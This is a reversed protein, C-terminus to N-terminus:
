FSTVYKRAALLAGDLAGGQPACLSVKPSVYRSLPTTILEGMSFVGGSWSCNTRGEGVLANVLRSLEHAAADLIHLSPADGQRALDAVTRALSAVVGREDGSASVASVLGFPDSVGFHSCVGRLLETREARGDAQHSAEGLAARGIWYGSGEDGFSSGWGGARGRRGGISSVAISGTGSIVLIGDAGGLAGLRAIEADSNLVVGGMHCLVPELADEVARERGPGYGALGASLVTTELDTRSERAVEGLRASLRERMGDYGVQRPHMTGRELSFLVAGDEDYCRLRTKTGGADIAIVRM